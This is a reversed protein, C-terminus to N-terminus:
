LVIIHWLASIVSSSSSLYIFPPLFSNGKMWPSAQSFLLILVCLFISHHHPPCSFHEMLPVALHSGVFFYIFYASIHFVSQTMNCQNNIDSQPIRVQNTM